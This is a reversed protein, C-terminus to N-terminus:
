PMQGSTLEEYLLSIKLNGGPCTLLNKHRWLEVDLAQTLNIEELNDM